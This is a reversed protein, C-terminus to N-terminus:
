SLRGWAHGEAKWLEGLKAFTFVLTGPRIIPEGKTLQITLTASVSAYARAGTVGSALMGQYSLRESEVGGNKAWWETDAWWEDLANPGIWRYPAFGDIIVLNGAYVSKLLDFDKSNFAKFM